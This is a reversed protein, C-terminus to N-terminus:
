HPVAPFVHPVPPYHLVSRMQDDSLPQQEHDVGYRLLTATPLQLLRSMWWDKPKTYVSEMTSVITQVNSNPGIKSM